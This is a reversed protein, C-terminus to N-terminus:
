FKRLAVTPKESRLGPNLALDTRTSNSTSLDPCPNTKRQPSRKEEKLTIGGKVGYVNM